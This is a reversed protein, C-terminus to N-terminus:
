KLKGTRTKCSAGGNLYVKSAGDRNTGRVKILAAAGPRVKFPPSLSVTDVPIAWVQPALGEVVAVIEPRGDVDYGSHRNNAASFRFERCSTRNFRVVRSMSTGHLDDAWAYRFLTGNVEVTKTSVSLMRELPVVHYKLKVQAPALGSGLYLLLLPALAGLAAVGFLRKTFAGAFDISRLLDGM